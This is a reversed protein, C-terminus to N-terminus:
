RVTKLAYKERHFEHIESKSQMLKEKYLSKNYCLLNKISKKTQFNAQLPCSDTTIM